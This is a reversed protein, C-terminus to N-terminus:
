HIIDFPRIHVQSGLENRVIALDQSRVMQLVADEYVVLINRWVHDLSRHSCLVDPEVAM